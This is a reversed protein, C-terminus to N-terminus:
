FLENSEVNSLSKHIEWDLIFHVIKPVVHKPTKTSAHGFQPSPFGISPFTWWIHEAIFHVTSTHNTLSTM